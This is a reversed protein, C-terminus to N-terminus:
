VYINDNSANIIMELSASGIMELMVALFIIYKIFM